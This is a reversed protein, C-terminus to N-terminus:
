WFTRMANKTDIQYRVPCNEILDLARLYDKIEQVHGESLEVELDNQNLLRLIQMLRETIM